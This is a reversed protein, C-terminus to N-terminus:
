GQLCSLKGNVELSGLKPTEIIDMVVNMNTEIVV